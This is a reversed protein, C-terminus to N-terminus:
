KAPATGPPESFAKKARLFAVLSQVQESDLTDGFAPMEGGGHVIQQQIQAAKLHRRVERLPPGNDTGEGQVGHCHTCGRTNYLEAGEARENTHASVISPPRHVIAAGLCVLLSGVPCFLSLRSLLPARRGHEKRGM